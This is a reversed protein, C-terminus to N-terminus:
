AFSDGKLDQILNINMETRKLYLNKILLNKQPFISNFIKTKVLM